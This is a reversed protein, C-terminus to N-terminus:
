KVVELVTILLENVAANLSLHPRDLQYGKIKKYLEPAVRIELRKKKM